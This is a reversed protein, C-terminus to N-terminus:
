KETMKADGSNFVTRIMSCILGIDITHLFRQCLREYPIVIEVRQNELDMRWVAISGYVKGAFDGWFKINCELATSWTFERDSKDWLCMKCGLVNSSKSYRSNM